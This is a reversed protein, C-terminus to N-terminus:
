FMPTAIFGHEGNYTGVVIRTDSVGYPQTSDAGPYAVPIYSPAVENEDNPGENLEVHKAFYGIPCSLAFGVIDTASNIGYTGNDLSHFSQCKDNDFVDDDGGAKLFGKFNEKDYFSVVMVGNNSIGNIRTVAAGLAMLQVLTFKGDSWTFGDDGFLGVVTLKNNIGMPVLYGTSSFDLLQVNNNRHWLFGHSSNDGSVFYNGVVDGLDNIGNVSTSVAGAIALSIYKGNAYKFGKTPCTSSSITGTCSFPQKVYAGVVVGSSNVGYAFTEAAGPYDIPAFQFPSSVSQAFITGSFLLCFLSCRAAEKVRM